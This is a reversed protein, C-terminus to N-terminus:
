CMKFHFNMEDPVYLNAFNLINVDLAHCYTNNKKKITHIWLKQM